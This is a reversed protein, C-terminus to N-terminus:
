FNWDFNDELISNTKKYNDANAPSFHRPSVSCHNKKEALCSLSNLPPLGLLVVDQPYQFAV